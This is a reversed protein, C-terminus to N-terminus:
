RLVVPPEALRVPLETEPVLWSSDSPGDPNARWRRCIRDVAVPYVTLTGDPAVRMRLFCKADEIGQGAFLENVNVGFRGAILLYAATLQTALVAALPMYLVAAM